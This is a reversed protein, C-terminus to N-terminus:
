WGRAAYRGAPRAAPRQRVTLMTVALALGTVVLFTVTFASALMGNVTIAAQHAGPHAAAARTTAKAAQTLKAHSQGGFWGTVGFAVALGVAGCGALRALNRRLVGGLLGAAIATGAVGLVAAWAQFGAHIHLM